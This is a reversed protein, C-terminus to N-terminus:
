RNSEGRSKGREETFPPKQLQGSENRNWVPEIQNERRRSRDHGDPAHTAISPSPNPSAALDSPSAFVGSVEVYLSPQIKLLLNL